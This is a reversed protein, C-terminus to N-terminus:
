SHSNFFFFHFSFLCIDLFYDPFKWAIGSIVWVRVLMAQTDRNFHLLAAATTKIISCEALVWAFQFVSYSFACALKQISRSMKLPPPGLRAAKTKWHQFLVQSSERGRQFALASFFFSLWATLCSFPFKNSPFLLIVPGSPSGTDERESLTKTICRWHFM